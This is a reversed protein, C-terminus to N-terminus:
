FLRKPSIASAYGLTEQLHIVNPHCHTEGRTISFRLQATLSPLRLPQDGICVAGAGDRGPSRPM